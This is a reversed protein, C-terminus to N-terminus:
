CERPNRPVRFRKYNPCVDLFTVRECDFNCIMIMKGTESKAFRSHVCTACSDARAFRRRVMM